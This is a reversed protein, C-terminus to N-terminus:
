IRSCIYNIHYDFTLKNDILFGLIKMYCYYYIKQNCIEIEPIYLNQENFLMAKSKAINLEICNKNCWSIIMDLCKKIEVFSGGFDYRKVSFLLQLDDAYLCSFARTVYDFIDYIIHSFISSLGSKEITRIPNHM